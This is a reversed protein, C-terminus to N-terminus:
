KGGQRRCIVIDIMCLAEHLTRTQSVSSDFSGLCTTRRIYFDNRLTTETPLYCKLGGGDHRWDPEATSAAHVIAMVSCCLSFRPPWHKATRLRCRENATRVPTRPADTRQSSPPVARHFFSEEIPEADRGAAHAGCRFREHFSLRWCGTFVWVPRPSVCARVNAEAV